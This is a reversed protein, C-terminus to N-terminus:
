KSSITKMVLGIYIALKNNISVNEVITHHQFFILTQKKKYCVM